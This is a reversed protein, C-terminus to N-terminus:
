DPNENDLVVTTVVREQFFPLNVIRNAEDAGEEAGDRVSVPCPNMAKM